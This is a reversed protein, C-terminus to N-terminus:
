AGEEVQPVASFFPGTVTGPAIRSGPALSAFPGVRADTGIEAQRGVTHEVVAGEAVVCDVLRCDPGLQAGAAVV